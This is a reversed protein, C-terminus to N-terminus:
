VHQLVHVISLLLVSNMYQTSNAGIWVNTKLFEDLSWRIVMKALFLSM